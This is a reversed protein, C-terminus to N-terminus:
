ILEGIVVLREKTSFLPHCTFVTLQDTLTPEAIDTNERPVIKTQTVRYDYEKGQWYVIMIDDRKVKDLLYLTLNSPPRYRFRHASLVTNGGDKPTSSSPIRWAGKWLAAESEQGEVISLNVGIKPIVLRNDPPRTKNVVRAKVRKASKLPVNLAERVNTLIQIGEEGTTPVAITGDAAILNSEYPFVPNEPTSVPGALKYRIIPWLPYSLVIIGVGILLFGVRRTLKRDKTHGPHLDVM